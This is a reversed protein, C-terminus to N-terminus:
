SEGPTVGSIEEFAESYEKAIAKIDKVKLTKFADSPIYKSFFKAHHSFNNSSILEMDEIDLDDLALPIRGEVGNIKVILAEVKEKDHSKLEIEKM